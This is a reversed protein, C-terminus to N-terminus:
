KPLTFADAIRELSRRRADLSPVLSSIMLEDADIERALALLGDRVHEPGGIVAGALFEDAIAQERRTFSHALAQEISPIPARKGLRSNVIAVRVPAAFRLAEEDDAGCIVTVACL